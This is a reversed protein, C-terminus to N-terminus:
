RRRIEVSQVEGAPEFGLVRSYFFLEADLARKITESKRWGHQEGAFAIYSHTVRHRWLAHVLMEAQSPPVIEDELGQLVLLPTGLRDTHHIPSRDVYVDRDEPYPGILGDLYRSEFKHTDRALAELDAVGYSSTGAAFDDTQTLVALTTFGGASGGHILLREGDVLDQEALWRTAAVCDEVDAIGWALDLERRYTRGFGTSGRYNVDVVAIGRSTWFQTQIQLQSRAMATPGGHIAVIVPPREGEPGVFDPNTPAYFLAHAEGEATPFTIPEPAAFWQPDLGLDRAPRLIEVSPSGGALDVAAIVPESVFSGGVFAVGNGFRQVSTISSFGTEVPSSTATVVRPGGGVGVDMDVDVDVDFLRLHDRGEHACAAVIRRDDDSVFAYRSMGFVWQPTGVEMRLDELRVAAVHQTPAGAVGFRYLTWWEDADSVYHLVGNPSWEPQFVSEDTGGAVSRPDVLEPEGHALDLGAVWLETGDWPMRPHDWQTWCLSNGDPSVRPFSVFDPGSVLVVQDGGDAPIAVLENTAEGGAEHSERVCILWDSGPIVRGDAYRLAQPTVPDRTIAVPADDGEALRYLRQDDYHNFYLTSADLWWAGGGYEHVRTRASWREGFVDEAEGGPRRRVIATRGGEEPRQESWWVDDGDVWVDGLGVASSVILDTSIQSEWSGYPAAGPPM